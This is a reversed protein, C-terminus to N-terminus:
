ISIVQSDSSEAESRLEAWVERIAEALDMWDQQSMDAGSSIRLSRRMKDPDYGMAALVHSPGEKGTSCASGASILFGRKELGRIWRASAFEPAILM